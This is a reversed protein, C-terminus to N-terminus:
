AVGLWGCSIGNEDSWCTSRSMMRFAKEITDMAPTDIKLKENLLSQLYSYIYATYM